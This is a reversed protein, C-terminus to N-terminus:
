RTMKVKWYREKNNATLRYVVRAFGQQQIADEMLTLAPCFRMCEDITVFFQKFTSGPKFKDDLVREAIEVVQNQLLNDFVMRVQETNCEPLAYSIYFTKLVM